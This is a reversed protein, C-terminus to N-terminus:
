KKRKGWGTSLKKSPPKDEKAETKITKKPSLLDTLANIRRKQKPPPVDEEEGPEQKVESSRSTSDNKDNEDDFSAQDNTRKRTTTTQEPTSETPELQLAYSSKRRVPERKTTSSAPTQPKDKAQKGSTAKTTKKRKKTEPQPQQPAQEHDSHQKSAPQDTASAKSSSAKPHQEGSVARTSQVTRQNVVTEIFEVQLTKSPDEKQLFRQTESLKKAVFETIATKEEKEVFSHLALHLEHEPLIELAQSPGLFAGILDEIRTDDLVEPRTARALLDEEKELQARPNTGRKKSFLLIENPNAVRGVFRQGFRQPHCTAYGSYEVKLRILPKTPTEPAHSSMKNAKEILKEVQEALYEVVLQAEGPDIGSDKLVVEEMIFPRVTKLEIAKLQFQDQYIEVLGIHKKKSEGESLSTAVSSGPQTIFYDGVSGPTPTILCEHEHGWIVLDLFNALMCEHIYNTRSHAVRNQHLVLVNFWSSRDEVPRMLKVKKQQFTRFLREDRVNGLGYLAVKTTGKTILIPYITINDVSDSKGFYNVLNCASLIDLAALGGDGAPDDHNGHISFVPIAVNFNPDEYNVTGFREAAAAVVVVV